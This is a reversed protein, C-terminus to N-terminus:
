PNPRWCMSKPFASNLAYCLALLEWFLSVTCCTRWLVPGPRASLMVLALSRHWALNGWRRRSSGVPLVWSFFTCYSLQCKVALLVIILWPLWLCLGWEKSRQKREQTSWQAKQTLFVISSPSYFSLGSLKKGRCTAPRHTTGLSPFPSFILTSSLDFNSKQIQGAPSWPQQPASCTLFTFVTPNQWRSIPPQKPLNDSWVRQFFRHSEPPSANGAGDFSDKSILDIASHSPVLGESGLRKVTIRGPFDSEWPCVQLAKTCQQAQTWTKGTRQSGSESKVWDNKKPM